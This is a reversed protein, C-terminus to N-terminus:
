VTPIPEKHGTQFDIYEVWVEVVKESGVFTEKLEVPLRDMDRPSVEADGRHRTGDLKFASTHCPCQFLSDGAAYGIFCGAHPCKASFATPEQDGESRVLYVAGIRQSPYRSWADTQSAVVPFYRPTGDAPVQNLLAVRVKATPKRRFLPSLFSAVGVGVPTLLAVSGAAVAGLTTIFSRRPPPSKACQNENSM